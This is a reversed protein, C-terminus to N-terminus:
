RRRRRILVGLGGAALLAMTAPEPITGSVDFNSGERSLTLDYDFTDSGTTVIQIIAAGNTFPAGTDSGIDLTIATTSMTAATPANNWLGDYYWTDNDKDAADWVAFGVLTDADSEVNVPDLIGGNVQNFTTGSVVDFDGSVFGSLSKGDNANFYITYQVNGSTLTTSTYSISPDASAAGAIALVVATLLLKKM